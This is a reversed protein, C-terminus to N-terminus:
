TTRVGQAHRRAGAGARLRRRTDRLSLFRVLAPLLEADTSLALQDAGSSTVAAEIQAAQAAAAQQFRERLGRDSTNVLLQGGTEPDELTILGVDPLAGERPDSLRGVIVEHRQALRNLATLWGDGVLLDSIILALSRRRMLADAQHLAAALDTRGQYRQAAHQQDIERLAGLLRLLHPRGAAPPILALPREAFLLAGVRNGRRGLLQGAVAALEIARDRKLCQATGWAVSASLDVVLWVDLGREAHAERVHPRETRATINWDIHRVDDGPQYERVETMELGAGRVLSREDGGLRTALPQLVTWQL